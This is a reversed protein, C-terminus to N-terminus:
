PATRSKEFDLRARNQIQRIRERGAEILERRAPRSLNTDNRAFDLQEREAKIARDANRFIGEAAFSLSGARRLSTTPEFGAPATYEVGSKAANRVRSVEAQMQERAKYYLENDAAGSVKGYFRRLIPTKSPDWPEGTVANAGTDYLDKFFKGTGGTVLQAMYDITGPAVDVWGSRVKDGGTASNAMKALAISFDSNTRFYKESDPKGKTNGYEKPYIPRGNWNKDMILHPFPRFITPTFQAITNEDHGLPDFADLVSAWIAGIAQVPKEKGLLMAATHGGLVSFMAYGYPLPLKFYAGDNGFGKPWMLIINKDREWPPVKTYYPEGADDDGGGAIGFVAALASVAALGYVVRRVRKHGLATVMRVTGQMAANAFMYLASIVSGWEGKKNFNVTLNRALLAADGPTMGVDRAAMYAALRTANEVAGQVVDFAETAAEAAHITGNVLGGELRRMKRDINAKIDEVNELGFFRIRGGARDFERFAAAYQGGRGGRLATFAGGIAPILHKSFRRVIRQKDADNLNIFAEGADRFLNPGTFNPNWTTALRAMTRTIAALARIVRNVQATGMNKLARAINKGHEGHFIIRHPVGNVKVGFTHPDFVWSTDTVYTVMGTAPDIGRTQPMRDITFLEPMPNAQAFRLFTKGVKNKEARVIAQEAQLLVYTLPSDALSTRGFAQKAEPGRVSFGQGMMHLSEEDETGEAWGRLPVYYRYKAEWARAAEVSLLGAAVLRNRTDEIIQRVRREIAEFDALRNGNRIRDIIAAADADSMGSPSDNGPTFLTAGTRRGLERNREPAHKAYLYEDLEERSISRAKMDAILPDIDEKELRELREGVRGYYLSEAQYTKQGEPLTINGAQETADELRKVRLFKDQLKVRTETPNINDGGLARTVRALKEWNRAALQEVLTEATALTYRNAPPRAPRHPGGTGASFGFISQAEDEAFLDHLRDAALDNARERRARMDGRQFDAFVDEAATFGMGRMANRIRALLEMIKEFIRVVAIHLGSAQQGASRMRTYIAASEAFVERDSVSSLQERTFGENNRAIFDRLRDAERALLENEQDTLVREIAHWSEHYATQVADPSALSVSILDAGYQYLGGISYKADTAADGWLGNLKGEIRPVVNARQAADWGAVQNIAARVAHTIERQRGGAAATLRHASQAESPQAGGAREAAETRAALEKIVDHLRGRKATLEEGQKFPQNKEERLQPLIEAARDIEGQLREASFNAINEVDKLVRDLLGRAGQLSLLKDGYSSAGAVTRGNSTLYLGFDYSGGRGQSVELKATAGYMAGVVVSKTGQEDKLFASTLEGAAKQLAKAAVGRRGVNGGQADQMAFPINDGLADHVAEELDSKNTVHRGAVDLSWKANEDGRKQRAIEGEAFQMAEVGSEFTNGEVMVTRGRAAEAVKDIEARMAAAEARGSEILGPYDRAAREYHEIQDQLGFMKRRHARELLELRDIEAMLKVRELLMPDGSALAAIEAMGVSEEDEFEMSFSGDYKRIGNIMKLKTANLDWMKADVTRETVYALIELEFNDAGYKDLLKNGQRIGRGERQEIDSPKWTVDGHHLGVIREQVNTGAGMRPTSGILVRVTGDNVADFLAKKEADNNAEQVFRIEDSPVGRAILNEKLQDYANWGGAQANRLEEIENPDYQELADITQRYATEDGAALAEDRKKILADYQDLITTDGKAAKVSRDLFVLQTGRDAGTAKWIRAVNDAIQELKGGEEKSPHRPDVARVDLSVKRAKDMLRLRAANREFPDSIGSLSNFGAVVGELVNQQAPTPKVVVEKRGGHKVKPVPFRAGANDEAYWKSIDEQSVADTFSYYLEMLARMNSWSRGLRTVEKLGGAETPEFKTAASVSQARWADFHELGLDRLEGAALYRMMTYMEVASNSIPTGTAFTVTGTPSEALVRVKNYLDYAKQSGTKDGMGRVGILRSSYFLNKFEHAEDVTLDDVGMQEFSLFNDRNAKKLAAMRTEITTVLREAEKVNFPKRRGEIGEEAAAEEAEEVAKLAIRYESDLFRLETEKSIGIFAFSSHPVIVIDWDGTAIRAFLRRRNKRDFSNRGAALVKAGPYLKYVDAAWQEVLHNPVVVMPKRSLGMRRREMARAIATFTKGAGVVHDLLMFREHIGRWIANKQHRRMKIVADPVKGPLQLHSGDHQRTVRTNFKENFIAVLENRRKSDAFVWDSFENEIERAKMAVLATAEQDVWKKGDRDERIVKPVRSNLLGNLIAEFSVDDTRWNRVKAADAGSLRLNFANTVRSFDVKATGGALHEAFAGYTHPPVWTSGLIVSVQDATWPKPQVAWLETRNKELGAATAAKLKQAVNGSLYDHRTEYAQTEPDFFALPKDGDTLEAIAGAEDLGRLQAIRAVDIRGRESLSIFLADQVSDAKTAPEYKPVVRRSLIPAKAATPPSAKEGSRSAKTNTVGPRYNHELALVLAGDPMDSVLAANKPDNLLGHKSRFADYAAALRKRNGEMQAESADQAELTLQQKTLDRLGTIERLKAFKTEGLQMSSPVKNGEFYKREYVNRNKEGKVKQGKEDTKAELTYWNGKDDMLLQRSWPSAPTLPRKTMESGGTPTEREVVQTLKGDATSEIHGPEAGSIAIALSESMTKHREATRDLVDQGVDVVNEPLRNVAEALLAALDAGKDLRVTVDAGHRMKGSRELAGLIMSRKGAFYDNLTIDEGGLPDKVAVTDIWSPARKALKERESEKAANALKRGNKADIAEKTKAEDAATRRKLILIDTVVETRANEKFATDPLRIAGILDAKAAIMSRAATDKADMLYRSVVAIQVGGPRLADLGALFFQNHISLGRLDPKFQFRLSESGFPPNGINLTFEGDPLPVDQLGSHLVTEQPYLAAAIRATLSDYEVAVFKTAGAIDQPVLGLFNGTGASSELVLGGKFGLRKAASWMADVVTKSTYHANRTSRRAARLEDPTLIEALEGGRKDWGDKFGGQDDAFANALGGWGVYRALARQEDATARRGDRELTKLVRIADLNDSFKRGESGEGLNVDDTIRFNIAPTTPAEADSVGASAPADSVRGRAAGKGRAGVGARGRGAGAAAPHADSAGSRAGRAGSVRGEDPGRDAGAGDDGRQDAGGRVDREGEVREGQGSPKGDLAEAGNSDTPGRENSRESGSIADKVAAGLRVAGSKVEAVFRELYPKMREFVERTFGKRAKLDTVIARLLDRTDAWAESFKSAAQEFLPKAKKYTEDDFVPGSGFTKGGGFMEVLADMAADAAAATNKAASKATEAKTRPASPKRPGNKAKPSPTEKAGFVEDLVSDFVDDFASVGGEPAPNVPGTRTAETGSPPPAGSPATDPETIDKAFDPTESPATTEAQGWAKLLETVKNYPMTSGGFGSGDNRVYAHITHRDGQKVIEIGGRLLKRPGLDQMAFTGQENSFTGDKRWAIHARDGRWEVEGGEIKRKLVGIAAAPVRTQGDFVGYTAQAKADDAAADKPEDAKAAEVRKQAIEDSYQSSKEQSIARQRAEYKMAAIADDDWYDALADATGNFSQSAQAIDAKIQKVYKEKTMRKPPQAKGDRVRAMLKGAIRMTAMDAVMSNLTEDLVGAIQEADYSGDENAESFLSRGESEQAALKEHNLDPWTDNFDWPGHKTVKITVTEDADEAPIEATSVDPNEGARAKDVLDIQKDGDGFLGDDAPKQAVKPKLPEDSKRQALEGDGIREAGPLVTQEGAPTAESVVEDDAGFTLGQPRGEVAREGGSAPEDGERPRAEEGGAEQAVAAREAGVPEDRSASSEPAAASLLEDAVGAGYIDDVQEATLEGEDLVTAMVAKEWAADASLGETGMLTVAREILGHKDHEAIMAPTEGVETLMASVEARMADHQEGDHRERDATAAEGAEHIPMVRRGRLEDDIMARIRNHLGSDAEANPGTPPLFGAEEMVEALEDMSMGAGRIVSRHGVGPILVRNKSSMGMHRLEADPKLGGRLAITQLLSLPGSPAATRQRVQKAPEAFPRKHNGNDLWDHLEDISVASVDAIDEARKSSTSTYAAVAAEESTFGGVVKHQRFKGTDRDKEDIIYVTKSEPNPGMLLDIHMGDAGVTGPFYGYAAGDHRTELTQGTRKDVGKRVGGAPTEFSVNRGQWRAHGLQRNNAEGQAPSYDGSAAKTVHDLDAATKIPLRAGRTGVAPDDNGFTPEPTVDDQEPGPTQQERRTDTKPAENSAAGTEVPNVGAAKADAIEAAREAPGMSDIQADDYGYARLISRDADNVKLDVDPAEASPRGTPGGTAGQDPAAKEDPPRTENEAGTKRGGQAARKSEIDAVTAAIEREDMGAVMAEAQQRTAGREMAFGIITERPDAPKPPAEPEPGPPPKTAEARRLFEAQEEPSSPGPSPGGPDASTSSADHPRTAPATADPKIGAAGGMAGGTLFGGVGAEIGQKLNEVTWFPKDTELSVTAMKVVEQAAETIGERGAGKAAEIAVRSAIARAVERRVAQIGGLRTIIPGISATDLLVMPGTAYLAVLAAREPDVKEDKLAKYVEGYNQVASPVAAGALAGTTAGVRGGVRSGLLGGATGMVLSPVSSAVGQGITEGMWDLAGDLNKVDWMSGATRAYKEPTKGDYLGRVDKSAGSLTRRLDLPDDKADKPALHSLGELTEALSEPNEKILGSVFGRNFANARDLPAAARSVGALAAVKGADGFGQVPPFGGETPQAPQPTPTSADELPAVPPFSVPGPASSVPARAPAPASLAPDIQPPYTPPTLSVPARAPRQPTSPKVVEDDNGFSLGSPQRLTPVAKRPAPAVVEDDDGFSMAPRRSQGSVDESPQPGTDPVETPMSPAVSVPGRLPRARPAAPQLSQGMLEDVLARHDPNAEAREFLPDLADLLGM